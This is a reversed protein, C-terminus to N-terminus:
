AAPREPRLSGVRVRLLHVRDGLEEVGAALLRMRALLTGDDLPHTIALEPCAATCIGCGRCAGATVLAVPAERRVGEPRVAGPDREVLRIAAYPCADVCAGCGICRSPEVAAAFGSRRAGSTLFDHVRAAAASADSVSESITKPGSASGCVFVGEATTESTRNKADLPAVFGSGDLAAGLHRALPGLDAAPVLGTSLVAVDPRLRLMRATALDEVEVVFDARM